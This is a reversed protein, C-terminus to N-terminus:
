LGSEGAPFDLDDARGRKRFVTFIDLLVRGQLAAKLRNQHLLRGDPVTNLNQLADLAVILLKVPDANRIINGATGHNHRLPINLVTKQRILRNVKQILSTGIHRQMRRQDAFNLIHLCLSLQNARFHSHQLFLNFVFLCRRLLDILLKGLMLAAFHLMSQANFLQLFLAFLNGKAHLIESM